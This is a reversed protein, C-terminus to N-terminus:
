RLRIIHIYISISTKLMFYIASGSIILIQCIIMYLMCKFAKKVLEYSPMKKKVGFSSVNRCIYGGVLYAIAKGLIFIFASIFAFTTGVIWLIGVAYILNLYGLM